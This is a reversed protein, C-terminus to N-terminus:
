SRSLVAQKKSLNTASTPKRLLMRCLSGRGDFFILSGVSLYAALIKYTKEDSTNIIKDRQEAIQYLWLTTTRGYHRHDERFNDVDFGAHRAREKIDSVPELTYGPFVNKQLFRTGDGGTWRDSKTICQLYVRGGPKLIENLKEFFNDRKILPIHELMGVITIADFDHVRNLNAFDQFLINCSINGQKKLFDEAYTAQEQSDTIGLMNVEKTKALYSCLGGWGCGIDLVNDGKNIALWDAILEMKKVQAENIEARAKDIDKPLDLSVDNNDWLGCTYQMHDDLFLKYTNVSIGYHKLSNAFYRDLGFNAILSRRLNTIFLEIQNTPRSDLSDAFKALEILNGSVSVGGKLYLKALVMLRGTILTWKRELRRVTKWSDFHMTSLAKSDKNVGLTAAFLSDEPGITIKITQESASIIHDLWVVAGKARIRSTVAGKKAYDTSKEIKEWDQQITRRRGNWVASFTSVLISLVAGMGIAPFALNGGVLAQIENSPVIPFFTTAALAAVMPVAFFIAVLYPGRQIKVSALTLTHTMIYLTLFPSAAGGSAWILIIMGLVCLTSCSFLWRRASKRNEDVLAAKEGQREFLLTMFFLLMGILIIVVLRLDSFHKFSLSFTSFYYLLWAFTFALGSVACVMEMGFLVPLEDLTVGHIEEDTPHERSMKEVMQICTSKEKM